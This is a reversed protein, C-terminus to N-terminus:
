FTGNITSGDITIQAVDTSPPATSAEAEITYQGAITSSATMTFDGAALTTSVGTYTIEPSASTDVLAASTYTLGTVPNGFQDAVNVTWFYDSGSQTAVGKSTGAFTATAVQQYSM